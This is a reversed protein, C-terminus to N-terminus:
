LDFYDPNPPRFTLGSPLSYVMGDGLRDDPVGADEMDAQVDKLLRAGEANGMCDMCAAKNYLVKLAFVKYALGVHIYNIAVVGKLANLAKDYFQIAVEFHGLAYHSVGLQFSCFVSKHGKRLGIEYQQIAIQHEGLAAYIIGLNIHTMAYDTLSAFVQLATLDFGSAYLDCARDWRKSRLQRDADLCETDMALHYFFESVRTFHVQCRECAYGSLHPHARQHEDRKEMDRFNSNCGPWECDFRRDAFAFDGYIGPRSDSACIAAMQVVAEEATIRKSAESVWSRNALIWLEDPMMSGGIVFNPRQPRKGEIVARLMGLNAFPGLGLPNQGRYLEICVMGFSYIDSEYTQRRSTKGFTEPDIIEPALWEYNGERKSSNANSMSEAFVALGFDAVRVKWHADILINAGRLDGHIIHEQHLYALGLAIEHLWTHVQPVLMTYNNLGMVDGETLKWSNIVDRISGNPMWPLVMSLSQQFVTKDVGFFPLVHEHKLSQWMISERLFDKELVKRTSMEAALHLRLRKLAVEESLYTGRFIDAFAGAAHAEVIDECKVGSLFLSSPPKEYLLSLRLVIRRLKHRESTATELVKHAVNLTIQRDSVVQLAVVQSDLDESRLLNELEACINTSSESCEPSCFLEGEIISSLKLCENNCAVITSEQDHKVRDHRSPDPYYLEQQSAPAARDKYPM